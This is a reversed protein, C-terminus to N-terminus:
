ELTKSEEWFVDMEELTMEQIDKGSKEEIYAFRRIFKECTRTLAVEPNIKKKRLVNIVAFLLDGAEAEMSDEDGGTLERYFEDAEERVKGFAQEADDWDFGVVSAKKQIKYARMMAGMAKPVDKLVSTYTTNGKEKRKIAEWNVVVEDASDVEVDAFIHPHRGIMKRCIATTVDKDDFEGCQRAIEAHFVIQLLVDGLEDYLADMDDMDITDVAEYAEELLYQRLTKHTQERDWPCGDEGRLVQMVKVLDYFGFRAKQKLKVPALVMSVGDSFEKQRDIDYLKAQRATGGCTVVAQTDPGYYEALATKVAYATFVSDINTVVLAVSTDIVADAVDRADIVRYDVQGDLFDGALFIAGAAANSGSLIEVEGRRQLARVFGNAYVNGTACFVVDAGAALGTILDAGQAYLSDFDAATEYLEDLTVAKAARRMIDAAAGAKGSQLVVVGAAEIACVAKLPMMEYESELGVIKIM